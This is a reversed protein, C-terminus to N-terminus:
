EVAVAEVVSRVYAVERTLKETMKDPDDSDYFPMFVFTGDFEVAKLGRVFAYWDTVGEDCPVWERKWGKQPESVKAGDRVIAVDKIGAAALYEGLLQCSRLWNEMGEHVQNGPDLMVGVAKPDLGKVIPWVSSASSVLTGHHIQYVCRVGIKLCVDAVKEMTARAADLSGRVDGDVVKRFYAPRFATIGCDALIKLPTDDAIIDEFAFGATAFEVALGAARMAEVFKPAEDALGGPTVWYGDRIVLNATDCGIQKVLAALGEVDLHKYFKPFISCTVNVNMGNM